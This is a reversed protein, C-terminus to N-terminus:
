WKLCSMFVLGHLVCYKKSKCYWSENKKERICTCHEFCLDHTSALVAEALCNLGTGVIM